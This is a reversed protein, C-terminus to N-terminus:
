GAGRGGALLHELSALVLRVAIGAAVAPLLLRRWGETTAVAYRVLSRHHEVLMAYPRRATSRGQEHVVAAGAEYWVGYGARHLRWCLDVDELYMFYSEDFGGVADFARRRVLLCAGSVWDAARSREQDEGLLRYRRTWPNDPWFLGVFGHGVADGLTPFRRGSPYVGGDSGLLKPGAVAADGHDGLAAVLAAIEGPPFVLDPNCVLVLESSTLSVGLNAAAGFGLNRASRVLHVAPEDGSVLDPSGDRSANDVVVVREVAAALLGAVCAGLAEGAEFNVVVAEVAASRAVGPEGRPAM